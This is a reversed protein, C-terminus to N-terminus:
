GRTETVRMEGPYREKKAKLVNAYFSYLDWNNNKASKKIELVTIQIIIM